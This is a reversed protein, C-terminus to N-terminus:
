VFFVVFWCLAQVLRSSHIAALLIDPPQPLRGETSTLTFVAPTPIRLTM